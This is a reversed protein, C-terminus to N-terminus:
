KLDEEFIVVKVVWSIHLSGEAECHSMDTFSVILLSHLPTNRSSVNHWEHRHFLQLFTDTSSVELYILM